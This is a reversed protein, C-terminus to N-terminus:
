PTPNPGNSTFVKNNEIVIGVNGDLDPLSIEPGVIDQFTNNTVTIYELHAEPVESYFSVGRVKNFQNHDIIIKGLQMFPAWDYQEQGLSIGRMPLGNRYFNPNDAQTVNNYVYVNQSSDIYIGVSFNDYVQNGIVELNNAQLATIGEGCNEYVENNIVRGFDAGIYHRHGSGWGGDQSSDCTGDPLRHDPNTVNDHIKSNKITVHNGNVRIGFDYGHMIEVNDIIVWSGTIHVANQETSGLTDVTGGTITIPLKSTGSVNFIFPTTIRGIIHITGGPQVVGMAQAMNCPTFISACNGGGEQDVWLDKKFTSSIIFIALTGTCIFILVKARISM